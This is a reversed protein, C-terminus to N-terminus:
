ADSDADAADECFVFLDKQLDEVPLLDSEDKGKANISLFVGSHDMGLLRGLMPYSIPKFYGSPLTGPSCVAIVTRTEQIGVPKVRGVLVTKRLTYLLKRRARAVRQDKKKTLIDVAWVGESEAALWLVCLVYQSLKADYPFDTQM